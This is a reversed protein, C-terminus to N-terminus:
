YSQSTDHAFKQASLSPRFVHKHCTHAETRLRFLFMRVVSHYYVPFGPGYQWHVLFDPVDDDNYYGPAPTSFVGVYEYIYWMM